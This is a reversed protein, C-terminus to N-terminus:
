TSSNNEQQQQFVRRSSTVRSSSSSSQEQKFIRQLSVSGDAGRTEFVQESQLPGSDYHSFEESFDGSSEKGFTKGFTAPMVQTGGKPPVFPTPAILPKPQQADAYFESPKKMFTSKPTTPPPTSVSYYQDPHRPRAYLDETPPQNLSTTFTSQQQSTGNQPKFTSPPHISVAQQFNRPPPPPTQQQQQFSQYGGGISSESITSYSPSSNNFKRDRDITGPKPSIAPKLPTSTTPYSGFSSQPQQQQRMLNFSTTASQIREASSELLSDLRSNEPGEFDVDSEDTYGSMGGTKEHYKARRIAALKSRAEQLQREIKLVESRADIEQAIGGVMKKNLVLQREEEQALAQQGAKVLNETARKVAHGAANLRRTADSDPASKVKCAVLLQATSSAVQKAASILKEETAHGQVLSNAAEVLSHTAAAVLQAASVLGESWQGDDSDSAAKRSVRGTDVLERQAASAAKVLASTAAAISKAAELIMEDFNLSEDAEKISRRPRLKELKKAAADISNAAGLLENEAIVTPDDPDEYESGKMLQAVAVLETVAQAIERSCNTLQSKVDAGPHNIAHLVFQLLERYNIALQRGAILLRERMEGEVGYAGAKTTTLLDSIAKRGMNAAVIVDDQRCSSGAAVAKATAQTVPKTVRILDEPAITRGKPIDPSDFARVEQAIAEITAELARTGRTHEDEVAKVTKLLSTVNTVMIKASEKLNEMPGYAPTKSALMSPDNTGKGAASKTSHILDYLAGAVDRVANILMVQAEPNNSGLSAAGFKVAEALQVITAVANQAASALQEQTSAAGAVLTKTDEVLAKATKLINERHDAFTEEGEAHLTGATAFMITTDLDGIIGSVTSAANICAQTGRSGAQLAALIDSVKESVVRNADSLDRQAFTDGHSFQATNGCRVLDICARGLEQVGIRLRVGVDQSITTTIAGRADNALQTYHHSLDQSLQPLKSPDITAKTVMDQSLRAIEKASNVMRSQYDVFSETASSPAAQQDLKVMSAAISETISALLGGAGSSIRELSSKLDDLGEQFCQSSLDLEPHLNIAKSNGGSEKAACIYQVCSELVTRTRELLNVQEKTEIINSATGVINGILNDIISTLSSVQHGLNEAESRGSIRLPEVHEEAGRLLGEANQVFGQLTNDKRQPLNQSVAALSAQNVERLANNLKQIAIECEKQGPAKERLATVLRKISDSVQKSHQALQHWTPPDKPNIALSKAATLMNCSGEIVSRGSSVIPEQIVRGKVSIKAPVGAFEPQGAYSRLTDVSRILSDTARKCTEKKESSQDTDLAKIEKVLGATANAVDKAMQVFQRKTTSDNTRESAVRCSTCLASTHKAITTASTLVQQQTVKPSSLSQCASKISQSSQNITHMDVMGPRGAVSTPESAALLYASQATSEILGCIADAAANVSGGFQDLQSEKAFNAIGTMSDGLLKSQDVVIQQCDFYSSRNIPESPNDLLPRLAQIKRVANDCEKQGPAASSCADILQNLSENVARAASSLQNRMGPADPNVSAAKAQVLLNSTTISVSKLTIIIEDRIQIDEHLAALQSGANILETTKGGFHRSETGLKAPNKTAGVVDLASNGVEAALRQLETQLQGYNRSGPIGRLHSVGDDLILSANNITMIADDVERQGPISGSVRDLADHVGKALPKMQAQKEYASDDSNILGCSERLLTWSRELVEETAILIRSDNSAAAVGRSASVLDTLGSSMSQASQSSGNADSASVSNVLQDTSNGVKRISSTLRQISNQMTDGPLPRLENRSAAKQCALLEAKVEQVKEAASELQRRPESPGLLGSDAKIRDLSTRLEVLEMALKTSCQTLHRQSSSDEIFTVAHKTTSVLSNSPRVFKDTADILNSQSSEDGSQLSSKVASVLQPITDAVARCDSSMADRTTANNCHPSASQAAAITQAAASAANKAATELRRLNKRQVAGGAADNTAERLAQATKKLLEQNKPDNPMSACAKAAEVLRSTAEALVKAAAILKKQVDSDPQKEAEGKIAQILQATAQALIRAQRVMDSPDHSTIIKDTAVLITDVAEEQRSEQVSVRAQPRIHDMLRNLSESVERAAAQLDDKLPRNKTSKDVSSLVAEVAQAVKRTATMLESRCKENNITPAVVKACAVLESAALATQAASSIIEERQQPDDVTEACKRAKVVLAASTNAVAKALALLMDQTEDGEGITNLLARSADGVRGAASLLSQRPEKTDPEAATLLDSFANCLKRTADILKDGGGDGMLAALMRADKAVEPLGSSIASVAEGMAGSDVEDTSTLTVVHATAANMAAIQTQVNAKKTDITTEKWKRTHPDDGMPPLDFRQNLIDRSKDIADHGSMLARKHATMPEAMQLQQMTTESIHTEHVQGTLTSYHPPQLHGTHISNMGDAGAQIVAPKAVSSTDLPRPVAPPQRQVITARIPSVNDEFLASGEDGEIGLHDKAQKKKLIIDIYGAILQAIQEGETTQVSYYQDSYDGFDLTFTNPSAAWRRVTTLPWTKLIEKTKEDLRLVSDKTVGLLRPVLKNKGPMKEKVLFFTVGYTDLARASKAYLAKADLESLGMHRRHEAFIKKEITKVKVYSSPLFEKPELFGARHKQPNHDGFQIQCQVGAFECAKDQTVPHTGDLIADRAQVYLLNLQVPDHQDINQDSFFFKRRLLLVEAEEVGQERLTKGHDIWNMEDDTKLKKRLQEMKADREKEERKRRMTLTGYNDSKNLPDNDEPLERALSYEDHNTIGMKTCIVVMLNAVNQSDDIMMTKNTGDLTRVKLPRMKRRYEIMDGNRLLFYDLTKSPELWAGSGLSEGPLFLGYDKPQGLDPLESCKDRIIKCADFITTSPDFQLTKTVSKEVIFVKLSLAM